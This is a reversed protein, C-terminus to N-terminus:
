SIFTTRICQFSSLAMTKGELQCCARAELVLVLSGTTKALLADNQGGLGSFEGRLVGFYIPPSNRLINIELM